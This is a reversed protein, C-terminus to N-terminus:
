LFLFKLREGSSPFLVASIAQVVKYYSVYVNCDSHGREWPLLLERSANCTCCLVRCCEYSDDVVRMDRAFSNSYIIDVM